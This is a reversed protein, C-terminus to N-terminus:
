EEEDSPEFSDPEDGEDWTAWASALADFATAENENGHIDAIVGDDTRYIHVTLRQGEENRVEVWVGPQSLPMIYDNPAGAPDEILGPEEGQNVM